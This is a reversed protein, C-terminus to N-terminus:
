LNLGDPARIRRYEKYALYILLLNVTLGGAAQVVAYVDGIMQPLLILSFLTDMSVFGILLQPGWAKGRYIGVLSATYAIVYALFIFGEVVSASTLLLVLHALGRVGTFFMLAMARKEYRRVGRVTGGPYSQSEGCAPCYM